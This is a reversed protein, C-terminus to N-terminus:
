ALTIAFSGVGWEPTGDGANITKNNTLPGWILLNGTDSAASGDHIGFAVVVGWDSIPAAEFSMVVINSMTGGTTVNSWDANAPTMSYRQYGGLTTAVETGGGADTPTVTYLALFLVAPKAFTSTRFLHDLIQQELYDSAQSM